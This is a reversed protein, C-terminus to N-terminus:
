LSSKGSMSRGPLVIARGGVAVCGAHVFVYREAHEAVWLELHSLLWETATDLVAFKGLSGDDDTVEWLEGSRDIRWSRDLSASDLSRYAPPLRDRVLLVAEHPGTVAVTRGYARLTVVPM